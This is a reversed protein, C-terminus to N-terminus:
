VHKLKPTVPTYSYDRMAKQNTSRAVGHVRTITVSQSLGLPGSLYECPCFSVRNVKRKCPVPPVPRIKSRSLTCTQSRSLLDWLSYPPNLPIQSFLPSKFKLDFVHRLVFPSMTVIYDVSSIRNGRKSLCVRDYM